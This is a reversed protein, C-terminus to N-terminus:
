AGASDTHGVGGGLVVALEFAAAEPCFVARLELVVDVGFCSAGEIAHVYVLVRDFRPGADPLVYYELESGDDTRFSRRALPTPNESLPNTM